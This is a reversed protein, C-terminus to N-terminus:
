APGNVFAVIRDLGPRYGEATDVDLLIQGFRILTDPTTCGWDSLGRTLGLEEM